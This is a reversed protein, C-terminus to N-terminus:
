VCCIFVSHTIYRAWTILFHYRLLRYCYSLHVVYDHHSSFIIGYYIFVIYFILTEIMINITTVIISNIRSIIIHIMM